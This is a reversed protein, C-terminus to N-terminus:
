RAGTVLAMPGLTVTAYALARPLILTVAQADSPAPEFVLQFRVPVNPTLAVYSQNEGLRLMNGGVSALQNGQDDVLHTFTEAGGSGRPDGILFTIRVQDSSLNKATFTVRTERPTREARVGQVLVVRNSWEALARPCGVADVVTRPPTNRCRDLNDSVGDGDSDRPCGNTDVPTGPPTNPCRDASDPIGDRDSDPAPITDPQVPAVRAAAVRRASDEALPMLMSAVESTKLVIARAAALINSTEIDVIRVDLDIREPLAAMTGVVIADVGLMQGFRRANTPQVLDYAGFNLEALVQGVRRREMVSYGLPNSALQTTLREAVYRGLVTATNQLDLVDPVALRLFRGAQAARALQSGIQEIAQDLSVPQQAFATPSGWTGASLTVLILSTRVTQRRRFAPAECSVTSRM